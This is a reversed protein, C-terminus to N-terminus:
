RTFPSLGHFVDYSLCGLELGEAGLRTLGDGGVRVSRVELEREAAEGVDALAHVDHQRLCGGKLPPSLRGGSASPGRIKGLTM